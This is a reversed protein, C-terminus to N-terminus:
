SPSRPASLMLTPHSPQADALGISPRPTSTRMRLRRLAPMSPWTAIAESTPDIAMRAAVAAERYTPFVACRKGSHGRYFLSCTGPHDEPIRSAAYEGGLEDRIRAVIREPRSAATQDPGVSFASLIHACAVETRHDIRLLLMTMAEGIKM